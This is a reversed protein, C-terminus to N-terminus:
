LCQGALHIRGFYPENMLDDDNLLSAHNKKLFIAQGGVQSLVKFIGRWSTCYNAILCQIALHATLRV